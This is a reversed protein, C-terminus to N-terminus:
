LWTTPDLEKAKVIEPKQYPIECKCSRKCTNIFISMNSILDVTVKKYEM